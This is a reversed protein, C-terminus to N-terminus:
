KISAIYKPPFNLKRTLARLKAAYERNHQKESPHGPLNFCLAARETGNRLKVVVAEPRYDSVSSESYLQTLERHSLATVMGHVMSRDKAVLTARQGIRLQFGKVSGPQMKRAQIGKGRLVAPDMFLGYFFVTVKRVESGGM